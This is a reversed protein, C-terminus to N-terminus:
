VKWSLPMLDSLMARERIKRDFSFAIVEIPSQSKMQVEVFFQRCCGCMYTPSDVFKSSVVAVKSIAIDGKAFCSLAAVMEAHLGVRHDFSSYVGGFYIKDGVLVSAGYNSKSNSSFHTTMGERACAELQDEIPISPNVVVFNKRFSWGEIKKLVRYSPNYFLEKIDECYFLCECNLNFVKYSMRSGTRIVHDVLTKVLLPSLFFENEVLTVMEKVHADKSAVAVALAAQESMVNLLHTQSEMLGSFHHKSAVAVSSTNNKGKKLFSFSLSRKLGEFLFPDISLQSLDYSASMYGGQKGIM